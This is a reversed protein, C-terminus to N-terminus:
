IAYKTRLYIYKMIQKIDTGIKKDAKIILDSQKQITHNSYDFSNLDVFQEDINGGGSACCANLYVYLPGKKNDPDHIGIKSNPYLVYKAAHYDLAVPDSSALVAKLHIGYRYRVIGIRRLKGFMLRGFSWSGPRRIDRSSLEGRGMGGFLCNNHSLIAHFM